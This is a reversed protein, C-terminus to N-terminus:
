EITRGSRSVRVPQSSTEACPKAVPITKSNVGSTGLPAPRASNLVGNSCANVDRPGELNHSERSQTGNRESEQVDSTSSHMPMPALTPVHM